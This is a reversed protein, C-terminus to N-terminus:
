YVCALTRIQESELAQCSCFLVLFTVFVSLSGFAGAGSTM